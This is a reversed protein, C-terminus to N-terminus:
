KLSLQVYVLMGQNYHFVTKLFMCLKGNCSERLQTCVAAFFSKPCVCNMINETTDFNDCIFASLAADPGILHSQM